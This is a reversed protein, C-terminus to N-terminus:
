QTQGHPLGDRRHLIAGCGMAGPTHGRPACKGERQGAPCIVGTTSHSVAEIVRGIVGQAIGHRIRYGHGNHVLHGRGIGIRAAHRFASNSRRRGIERAIDKGRAGAAINGIDLTGIGAAVRHDLHNGAIRWRGRCHGTAGSTGVPRHDAAAIARQRQTGIAAVAVVQVVVIGSDIRQAGATCRQALHEAVLDGIGVATDASRRQGDGDGAGVVRRHGDGIDGGRALVGGQRHEGGAAHQAVVGVRVAGVGM